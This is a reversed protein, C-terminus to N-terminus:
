QFCQAQERRKTACVRPFSKKQSGCIKNKKKLFSKLINMVPLKSVKSVISFCFWFDIFKMRHLYGHNIIIIYTKFWIEKYYTNISITFQAGTSKKAQMILKWLLPPNGM